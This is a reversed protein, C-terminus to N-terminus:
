EVTTRFIPAREWNTAQLESVLRSQLDLLFDHQMRM